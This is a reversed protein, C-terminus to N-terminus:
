IDSLRRKRESFERANETGNMNIAWVRKEKKKANGSYAGPTDRSLRNKEEKPYFSLRGRRSKV